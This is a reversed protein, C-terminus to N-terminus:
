ASLSAISKTIETESIPVLSPASESLNLLFGEMGNLLFIDHTICFVTKGKKLFENKIIELILYKNKIDLYQTPEDLLYVSANQLILQALWVLQKEGGSLLQFDKNALHAIGVRELVSRVAEYDAQNYNEFFKKERYRAMLVLDTVLIPFAIYNHQNLISVSGNVSVSGSYPIKTTLSKFFSTKGAGNNGIVAM